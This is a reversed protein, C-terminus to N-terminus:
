AKRNDEPSSQVSQIGHVEWQSDKVLGAEVLFQCINKCWDGQLQLVEGCDPHETATGSCAFKKKFPTVLKKKDYDDPIEQVTTITKRGNRQQIRIHIYDESDAPLLEDGKSADAFPDFSRFNQFHLNRLPLETVSSTEAANTTNM